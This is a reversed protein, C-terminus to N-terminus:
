APIIAGGAYKNKEVECRANMPGPKESAMMTAVNKAAITIVLGVWYAPITARVAIRTPIIESTAHSSRTPKRTFRIM